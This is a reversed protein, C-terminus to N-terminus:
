RRRDDKSAKPRRARRGGGARSRERTSRTEFEFRMKALRAREEASLDEGDDDLVNRVLYFEDLNRIRGRALVKPIVRWVRHRMETLSVAGAAMLFEDALKVTDQPLDRTMELQDAVGQKMGSLVASFPLSGNTVAADAQGAVFDGYSEQDQLGFRARLEPPSPHLKEQFAWMARFFRLYTQFEALREASPKRAM